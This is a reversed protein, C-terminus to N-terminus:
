FEEPLRFVTLKLYLLVSKKEFVQNLLQRGLFTGAFSKIKKGADKKCRIYGFLNAVNLSLGVSVM